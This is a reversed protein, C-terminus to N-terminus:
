YVLRVAIQHTAPDEVAIKVSAMGKVNLTNGSVAITTGPDCADDHDGLRFVKQTFGTPVTWSIQDRGATMVRVRAPLTITGLDTAQGNIEVTKAVIEGELLASRNVAARYVVVTYTGAALKDFNFRGAADAFVARTKPPLCPSEATLSTSSPLVAAALFGFGEATTARGSVAGPGVPLDGANGSPDLGTGDDVPAAGEFACGAWVLCCVLAAKRM